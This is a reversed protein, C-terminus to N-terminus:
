SGALRKLEAWIQPGAEEVQRGYAAVDLQRALGRSSGEGQFVRMCVRSLHGATEEPSGLLQAVPLAGKEPIEVVAAGTTRMAVLRRDSQTRGVMKKFTWYYEPPQAVGKYRRDLQRELWTTADKGILVVARFASLIVPHKPERIASMLAEAAVSPSLVTLWFLFPAYLERTSTALLLNAHGTDLQVHHREAYVRYYISEGFVFQDAAGALLKNADLVNNIEDFLGDSLEEHLLIGAAQGAARTLRVVPASPDNTVRAVSVATGPGATKSRSQTFVPVPVERVRRVLEDRVYATRKEVMKQLQSPSATDSKAGTRYYVAHKVIVTRRVGHEDVAAIEKTTTHPISGSPPIHLVVYRKSGARYLAYNIVPLEPFVIANVLEAVKAPDFERVEEPQLGVWTGDPTVGFVLFGGDTNAFSIAAKVARYKTRPAVHSGFLGCSKWELYRSEATARRLLEVADELSDLANPEAALSSLSRTTSAM